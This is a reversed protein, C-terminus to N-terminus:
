RSASRRTGSGCARRASRSGSGTTGPSKPLPPPSSRPVPPPRFARACWAGLVCEASYFLKTDLGAAKLKQVVRKVSWKRRFAEIAGADGPVEEPHVEFAISIDYSHGNAKRWKDNDKEHWKPLLMQHAHHMLGKMMMVMVGIIVLFMITFVVGETSGKSQAVTPAMTPAATDM